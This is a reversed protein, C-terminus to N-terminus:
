KKKQERAKRKQVLANLKKLYENEARLYEIEELLEEKSKETNEKKPSKTKKQMVPKKGRKLSQLGVIGSEEYIKGWRILLDCGIGASSAVSTWSEGNQVREILEIRQSIDLTPRNHYLGAEGLADFTNCWKRVQRTFADRNKMNAPVEIYEGAKRKRICELKFELTYKM